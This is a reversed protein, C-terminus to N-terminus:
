KAGADKLLKVIRPNSEAMQLVSMGNDNKVNVDAGKAILLRVTDEGAQSNSGLGIGALAMMLATTGDKMKANVDMGKDLLLQVLAPHCSIAAAMLATGNDSSTLHIDAGHALLLRVNETEGFTLADTLATNGGSDQANVDAGHALLLKVMNVHGQPGVATMLATKGGGGERPEKTKLNIAAGHALLLAAITPDGLTAAGILATQGDNDAANVKAGHDLLLKVVSACPMGHTIAQYLIPEGGFGIINANAGHDLLLKVVDAKGWIAAITLTTAEKPEHADVDAGQSLAKQVAQVNLTKPLNDYNAWTHLLRANAQRQHASVKASAKQAYTRHPSNLVLAASVLLTLLFIKRHSTM